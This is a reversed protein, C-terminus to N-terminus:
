DGQEWVFVEGSLGFGISWKQSQTLGNVRFDEGKVATPTVCGDLPLFAGVVGGEKVVQTSMSVVSVKHSLNVQVVQSPNLFGRRLFGRVSSPFKVNDKVPVAVSASNLVPLVAVVEEAPASISPLLSLITPETASADGALPPQFFGSVSVPRLAEVSELFLNEDLHVIRGERAKRYYKQFPKSELSV